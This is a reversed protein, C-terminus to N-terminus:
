ASNTQALIYKLGEEYSQGSNYFLNNALLRLSERYAAASGTLQRIKEEIHTIEGPTISIGLEKRIRNELPEIGLQNVQPNMIKLPTDIFLVPRLTGFAYELAIGSRDTILLDALVLSSIVTPNEDFSVNPLEDALKKLATYKKFSRKVYEPHSRILVTVPLRALQQVLEHICTELICQEFWSPAVLIKLPENDRKEKGATKYQHRIVDLLPYGYEIIKKAPLNYVQELKRLELTHEPGTSYFVDYHFFAKERYQQHISVLAHFMYVYSGAQASRKFLYNDLDPMTLVVVGAKLKPFLFGLFRKICVVQLREPSQRLLPDQNDSTIYLVPLTTKQLVDEVLQRYYQYYHRSEAYFIVPHHQQLIKVAQKYESFFGM